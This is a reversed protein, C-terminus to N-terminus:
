MVFGSGATPPVNPRAKGATGDERRADVSAKTYPRRWSAVVREFTATTLAKGFPVFLATKSTAMKSAVRPTGRIVRVLGIAGPCHYWHFEIREIALPM